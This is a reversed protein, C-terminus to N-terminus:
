VWSHISLVSSVVMMSMASSLMLGWWTQRHLLMFWAGGSIVGMIYVLFMVDTKFHEHTAAFQNFWWLLYLLSFLSSLILITASVRVQSSRFDAKKRGHILVRWITYTQREFWPGAAMGLLMGALMIFTYQVGQAM